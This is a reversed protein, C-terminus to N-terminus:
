SVHRNKSGGHVLCTAVLFLLATVTHTHKYPYSILVTDYLMGADPLSIQTRKQKMHHRMMDIMAVIETSHYKRAM